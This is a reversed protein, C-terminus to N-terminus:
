IYPKLGQTQPQKQFKCHSMVVIQGSVITVYITSYYIIPKHGECAIEFLCDAGTGSTIGLEAFFKQALPDFAHECAISGRSFGGMNRRLAEHPHQSGGAIRTSIVEELNDTKQLM